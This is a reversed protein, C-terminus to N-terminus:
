GEEKGYGLMEQAMEEYNGGAYPSIARKSIM